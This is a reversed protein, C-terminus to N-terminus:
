AQRNAAISIAAIHATGPPQSASRLTRTKAASTARGCGAVTKRVTRVAKRQAAAAVGPPRIRADLRARPQARAHRAIMSRVENLSGSGKVKGSIAAPRATLAVKGLAGIM